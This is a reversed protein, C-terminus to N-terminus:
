SATDANFQKIFKEIRKANAGVDSLGVRSVSRMDIISGDAVAEIRIVIDDKFGFWFSTETAEIMGPDATVVQWHSQNVLALAHIFAQNANLTSHISQVKPYAEHQQAAIEEGAYHISNSKEPRLLAIEDFQPPNNTDTTIDHIKPLKNVLYFQYLMPSIALVTLIVSVILLGLGSKSRSVWLFIFLFCSLAMVFASLYVEWRIMQFAFTYEWFQLRTGVAALPFAIIVLLALIFNLRIFVHSLAITKNM